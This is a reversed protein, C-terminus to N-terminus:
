KDSTLNDSLQFLVRYFVAREEATTEPAMRTFYQRITAHVEKALEVGEQTLRVPTRYARSDGEQALEVLGRQRLDKLARSIAAKDEGTQEVIVTPALGDPNEELLYVCMVHVAKLDYRQMEITKIKQICHHIRSVALAFQGFRHQVM